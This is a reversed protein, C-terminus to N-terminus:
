SCSVETEGSLVAYWSKIQKRKSKDTSNPFGNRDSQWHFSHRKKPSSITENTHSIIPEVDSSDTTLKDNSTNIAGSRVLTIRKRHVVPNIDKKTFILSTSNQKVLTISKNPSLEILPACELNTNLKDSEDDTNASSAETTANTKSKLTFIEDCESFCSDLINRSEGRKDSNTKLSNERECNINVNINKGNGTAIKDKLKQHSINNNNNISNNNNNNNNNNTCSQICKGDLLKSNNCSAIRNGIQLNSFEASSSPLIM